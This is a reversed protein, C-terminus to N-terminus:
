SLLPCQPDPSGGVGGRPDTRDIPQPLSSEVDRRFCSVNAANRWGYFMSPTVPDCGGTVRWSENATTAHFHPDSSFDDPRASPSRVANLLYYIESSSAAHVQDMWQTRHDASWVNAM